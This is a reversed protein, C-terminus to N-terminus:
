RRARHWATTAALGQDVSFPPTWHFTKQFRTPDIQLSGCLRDALFNKGALGALARLITPPVPLDPTQKNQSRRIRKVLDATSLDEGDSLLYTGAARSRGDLISGIASFLNGTFLLSRRNGTIGSFPLPIPMDCLRMLAGFNASVGPGYLLPVRLSISALGSSDSIKRLVKEGELKSRSYADAPAPNDLETFGHDTTKEGNVKVSSLFIFHRVGACAAARALRETVNANASGYVEDRDQVTERMMHVRAALHVVADVGEVIPAFDERQKLDGYIRTATSGPAAAASRIGAIVSYGEAELYRCLASGIFGNAGTVLIKM